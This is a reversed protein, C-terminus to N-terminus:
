DNAIEVDDHAGPEPRYQRGPPSSHAVLVSTAEVTRRGSSPTKMGLPHTLRRRVRDEARAEPWLVPLLTDLLVGFLPLAVLLAHIALTWFVRVETCCGRRGELVTFTRTRQPCVAWLNAEPDTPGGGPPTLESRSCRCSM